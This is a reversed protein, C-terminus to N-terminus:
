PLFGRYQSRQVVLVSSHAVEFDVFDEGVTQTL